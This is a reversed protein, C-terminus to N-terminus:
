RRNNRCQRPRKISDDPAVIQFPRTISTCPAKVFTYESVYISMTHDLRDKKDQHPCFCSASAIRRPTQVVQDHGEMECMSGKICFM